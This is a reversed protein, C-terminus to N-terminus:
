GTPYHCALSAFGPDRPWLALADVVVGSLRLHNPRFVTAPGVILICVLHTKPM